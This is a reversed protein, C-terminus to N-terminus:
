EHYVIKGQEDYEPWECTYDYALRVLERFEDATMITPQDYGVEMDDNDDVAANRIERLRKHSLGTSM